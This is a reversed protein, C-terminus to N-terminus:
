GRISLVPLVYKIFRRFHEKNNNRLTLHMSIPRTVAIYREISITVVMFISSCLLIMKFPYLVKPFLVIQIQTAMKFHDRFSDLIQSLLFLNDFIALAILLLNFISRMEKRSLVYCFVVNMLIGVVAITVQIAGGLLISFPKDRLWQYCEESIKVCSIEHFTTNLVESSSSNIRFSNMSCSRSFYCM